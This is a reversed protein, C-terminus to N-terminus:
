NRARSAPWSRSRRLPGTSRATSSTACIARGHRATLRRRVAAPTHEAKLPQESSQAMSGDLTVWRARLTRGNRVARQGTVALRIGASIPWRAPESMPMASCADPLAPRDSSMERHSVVEHVEDDRHRAHRHEVDHEHAEAEHAVHALLLVRAVAEAEDEERHQHAQRDPRTTVTRCSPKRAQAATSSPAPWVPSPRARATVNATRRRDHALIEHRRGHAAEVLKRTPPTPGPMGRREHKGPCRRSRHLGGAPPDRAAIKLRHRARRPTSCAFSGCRSSSCSSCSRAGIAWAASWRARRRRSTSSTAGSPLARRHRLGAGDARVARRGGAAPPRARGRAGDVVALGATVVTAATVTRAETLSADFVHRAVLYATLIGIGAALGAPCRSARSRRAPVGGTAVPREVPALALFFAPIGITLSSTLTFQRPLLPFIGSPLAITVLLFATFVAKTVFLRAVRQINRLIQRGEHVMRPVEGFEGSVLVLDSVSRAMQTGSGQAIALRAQKLAPCTTSATASCGSTSAPRPSCACWARRTRPRSAASRRRRACRRRAAGDDSRRCRAATSRTAIPGPDGRRARDRRGDGPQRGLAVKLAVEEAAFFAVTESPTRRAAARGARRARAPAAARAAARGPAPPPCRRRPPPSRWCAVAAPPRARAARRACRRTPAPSCRRPRAWCSGTATSSSRAGAGGRRSRCRGRDAGARAGDGRSGRPTRGGRADRQADARQGRLAGLARALDGRRDGDRAPGARRGAAVAETLTGTKDTCLVSVSALSEIANLQQALVGRRAM